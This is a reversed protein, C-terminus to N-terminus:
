WVQFFRGFNKGLKLRIEGVLAMDAEEVTAIGESGQIVWEVGGQEGAGLDVGDHGGGYAGGVAPAVGGGFGYDLPGGAMDEDEDANGNGNGNGNSDSIGIGVGNGNDNSYGGGDGDAYGNGYEGDGSSGVAAGTSAAGVTDVGAVPIWMDEVHGSGFSWGDGGTKDSDERVGEGSSKGAHSDDDPEDARAKGSHVAMAVARAADAATDRVGSLGYNGKGFSENSISHRDAGMALRKRPPGKGELGADVWIVGDVEERKDEELGGTVSVAATAALFEATLLGEAGSASEGGAAGSSSSAEVSGRVGTSGGCAGTQPIGEDPGRDGGVVPTPPLLSPLSSSPWAVPFSLSEEGWGVGESIGSVGSVGASVTASFSGYDENTVRADAAGVALQETVNADVHLHGGGHIDNIDNDMSMTAPDVDRGEIRGPM